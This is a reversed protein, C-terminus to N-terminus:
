SRKASSELKDEFEILKSSVPFDNILYGLKFFKHLANFVVGSFNKLNSLGPYVIFSSFKFSIILM